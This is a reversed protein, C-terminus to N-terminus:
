CIPYSAFSLVLWCNWIEDNGREHKSFPSIDHDIMILVPNDGNGIIIIELKTNKNNKKSKKNIGKGISIKRRKKWKIQDQNKCKKWQFRRQYDILMM